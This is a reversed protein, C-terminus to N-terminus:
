VCTPYNIHGEICKTRFPPSGRFQRYGPKCMFEINEGSQSYTKTNERWRLVINHKAMIDESIVCAHLCTPPDSWKGNRCTIIKNGKLLFYNQCQYEVSSLPAYEPLSLSTIDGNDIPPPPGCKGTSNPSICKPPSSWGQEACTITSQNNQLSYGQNCVIQVIDGEKRTQGSSTSHGNEVSPFFCLRLCKPVPSWGAETCIIPNWFSSSPSAFNYECSYYLIKGGPVLSFPEYKKEDYVIGHRINPFNCYIGEGKAFSFWSTLLVNALFLLICFGM